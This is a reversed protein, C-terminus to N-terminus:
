LVINCVADVFINLSMEVNGRSQKQNRTKIFVNSCVFLFVPHINAERM